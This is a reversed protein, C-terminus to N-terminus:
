PFPLPAVAVLSSPRVARPARQVQKSRILESLDVAKGDHDFYVERLALGSGDSASGTSRRTQIATSEASLGGLLVLVTAILPAAHM